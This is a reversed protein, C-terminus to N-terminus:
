GRYIINLNTPNHHDCKEETMSTKVTEYHNHENLSICFLNGDIYVLNIVLVTLILAMIKFLNMFTKWKLSLIQTLFPNYIRNLM